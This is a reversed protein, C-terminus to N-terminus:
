INEDSQLYEISDTKIHYTVVGLIYLLSLAPIILLHGGRIKAKVLILLSDLTELRKKSLRALILTAVNIVTKDPNTHKTPSLM